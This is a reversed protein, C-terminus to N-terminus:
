GERVFIIVLCYRVSVGFCRIALHGSELFLLVIFFGVLCGLEMFCLGIFALSVVMCVVVWLRLGAISGLSGGVAGRCLVWNFFCGVGDWVCRRLARGSVSSVIWVMCVACWRSSM